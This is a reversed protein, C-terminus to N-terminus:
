QNLWNLLNYFKGKVLTGAHYIRKVKDHHKKFFVWRRKLDPTMSIYHLTFDKFGDVAILVLPDGFSGSTEKHGAMRRRLDPEPSGFKGFRWSM